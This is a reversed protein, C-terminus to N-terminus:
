DIYEKFDEIYSSICSPCIIDGFISYYHDDQIHEGCISCVPRHSLWEDQEEYYREADRVPDDTIMM